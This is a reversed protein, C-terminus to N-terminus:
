TTRKTNTCAPHHSHVAHTHARAIVGGVSPEGKVGNMQSKQAHRGGPTPRTRKKPTGGGPNGGNHNNHKNPSPKGSQTLSIPLQGGNAAKLAQLIHTCQLPRHVTASVNVEHSIAAAVNTITDDVAGRQRRATAYTIEQDFPPAGMDAPSENKREHMEKHCKLSNKWKFTM